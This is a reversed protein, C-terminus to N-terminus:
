PPCSGCWGAALQPEMAAADSTCSIDLHLEQVAAVLGDTLSARHCPHELFAYVLRLSPLAGRQLAMHVLLQGLKFDEVNVRELGRGRGRERLWVVLEKADSPTFADLPADLALSRARPFTTLAAQLKDLNITGLARFHERVVERLAKCTRGLRAADECTLLPLVYEEWV